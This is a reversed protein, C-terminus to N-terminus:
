QRPERRHPPLPTSPPSRRGSEIIGHREWMTTELREIRADHDDQLEAVQGTLAVTQATLTATAATLTMLQRILWGVVALAAGLLVAVITDIIGPGLDIM